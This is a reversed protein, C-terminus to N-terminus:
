GSYVHPALTGVFPLLIACLAWFGLVAILKAPLSAEWVLPPIALFLVYILALLALVGIHAVLSGPAILVNVVVIAQYLLSIGGGIYWRRAGRHLLRARISSGSWGSQTEVAGM